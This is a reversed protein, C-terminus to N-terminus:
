RASGKSPRRSYHFNEAPVAPDAMHAVSIEHWPGDKARASQVPHVQLQRLTHLLPSLLDLHYILNSPTVGNCLM